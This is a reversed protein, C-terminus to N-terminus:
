QTITFTRATATVFPGETVANSAFRAVEINLSIAGRAARLRTWADADPTYSTNATEVRLLPQGGAGFVLAYAVGGFPACHADAAPLLTTWRALDDRWEFPRVRPARALGQPHWRFTYPTANPLTEGEMPADIAPAQADSAMAAARSEATDLGECAEDTYRDPTSGDVPECGLLVITGDHCPGTESEEGGTCSAVVLPGAVFIAPVLWLALTLQRINV